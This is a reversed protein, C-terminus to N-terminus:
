ALVAPDHLGIFGEDTAAGDSALTAIGALALLVGYEGQDLSVAAHPGGVDGPLVERSDLASELIVKIGARVEHGIFVLLEAINPLSIGAMLGHVVAALFICATVHVGVGFAHERDELAAHGPDVLVAVRLM